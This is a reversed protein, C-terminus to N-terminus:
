YNIWINKPVIIETITYYTQIKGKEQLERATRVKWDKENPNFDYTDLIKTHLDGTSKDIYTDIIDVNHLANKLNGSTFQITKDEIKGNKLLATKHSKIFDRFELSNQIAVSLSSKNSFVIGRSDNVKMQKQIKNKIINQLKDNKLDTITNYIKGQTKIYKNSTQLGDVSINWLEAADPQSLFGIVNIGLTFITSKTSTILNETYNKIKEFEFKLKSIEEITMNSHQMNNKIYLIDQMSKDAKHKAANIQEKVEKLKQRDKSELKNIDIVDEFKNIEKEQKNVQKIYEEIEEELSKTDGLLKAMELENRKREKLKERYAEIPDKNTEDSEKELIEIHCKCNPHPRDPIEDASEFLKGDMEKCVECAGSESRWQYIVNEKVVYGYLKKTMKILGKM